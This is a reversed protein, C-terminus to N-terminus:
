KGNQLEKRYFDMYVEGSITVLLSIGDTPSHGDPIEINVHTPTFGLVRVGVNPTNSDGCLIERASAIPVRVPMTKGHRTHLLSTQGNKGASKTRFYVTDRGPLDLFTMLIDVLKGGHTNDIQEM